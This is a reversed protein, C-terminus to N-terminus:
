ELVEVTLTRLARGLSDNIIGATGDVTRWQPVILCSGSNIVDFQWTLVANNFEFQTASGVYIQESDPVVVNEAHIRFATTTDKLTNTIRAINMTCMVKDGASVSVLTDLDIGSFVNSSTSINTTAFANIVAKKAAPRFIPIM